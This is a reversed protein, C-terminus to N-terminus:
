KDLTAFAAARQQMSLLAYVVILLFKVLYHVLFQIKENPTIDKEWDIQEVQARQSDSLMFEKLTMRNKKGTETATPEDVGALQM